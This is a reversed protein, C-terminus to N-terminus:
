VDGQTPHHSASRGGGVRQLCVGCKSVRSSSLSISKAEVMYSDVVKHMLILTLMILNMFIIIPLWM